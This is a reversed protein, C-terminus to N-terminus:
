KAFYRGGGLDAVLGPHVPRWGLLARTLDSSAAVDAAFVRGLWGFHEPPVSAVPLGLRRGIIGAIVRVEVGEDAIAHLTSGAPARELALRCLHAADRVHVASWRNTGDGPYGSVKTERAVRVLTALFGPDGDGHVTPPLRLVVSRVGQAALDRVVQANAVRSREAPDTDLGDRETGLPGSMPGPVGSAVVFPRGALAEGMAEIALRDAAVAAQFDGGFALDHKFALHIVGDAEAAAARLLGPDDLTGRCVDAGAATLAAAANDSRALGVVEHGARLLEPVVARGIWGSAGTVLIRM